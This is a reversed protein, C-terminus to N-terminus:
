PQSDGVVARLTPQDRVLADRLLAIAYEVVRSSLAGTHDITATCTAAFTPVRRWVPFGIEAPTSGTQRVEDALASNTRMAEGLRRRWDAEKWRLHEYIDQPRLDRGPQYFAASRRSARRPATARRCRRAPRTSASKATTRVSQSGWSLRRPRSCTARGRRPCTRSSRAGCRSSWASCRPAARVGDLVFVPLGAPMPIEFSVKERAAETTLSSGSM